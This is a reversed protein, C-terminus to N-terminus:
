SELYKQIHARAAQAPMQRVLIRKHRGTDGTLLELQRPPLGLCQALFSLLARNAKGDVPPAKLRIKLADGHTGQIQNRAARPAAHVTIICGASSDTIWSMTTNQLSTRFFCAQPSGHPKVGDAIRHCCATM